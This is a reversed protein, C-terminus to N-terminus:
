SLYHISLGFLYIVGPSWNYFETANVFKINDPLLTLTTIYSFIVSGFHFYQNTESNIICTFDM